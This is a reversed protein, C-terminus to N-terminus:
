RLAFAPLGERFGTARTSAATQAPRAWDSQSRAVVTQNQTSSTPPAGTRSRARSALSAQLAFRRTWATLPPWSPRRSRGALPCPCGRGAPEVSLEPMRGSKGLGSQQFALTKLLGSISMPSMRDGPLCHRSNTARFARADQGVKGLASQHFALTKLLGSISM